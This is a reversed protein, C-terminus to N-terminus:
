AREAKALERTLLRVHDLEEEIIKDLRDRGLKAPLAYKISLYFVITDKEAEIVSKLVNVPSDKAVENDFSVHASAFGQLYKSAEDNPDFVNQSRDGDSLEDRMAKFTKVHEVEMDALEGFLEKLQADETERSMKRYFRAGDKELEEAMAFVEDVSFAYGM